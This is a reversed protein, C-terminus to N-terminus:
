TKTSELCITISSVVFLTRSRIPVFGPQKQSTSYGKRKESNFKRRSTTECSSSLFALRIPNVAGEAERQEIWEQSFSVMSKPLHIETKHKDFLHRTNVNSRLNKDAWLKVFLLKVFALFAPGPGYGEKWIANHCTAFLHRAKETTPRVFKFESREAIQPTPAASKAISKAGIIAKLQDFKPNGITFDTFDLTLVPEDKDWEYVSTTKGNSLVFYRVPNSKPFKRNLALCYGSCQEIWDELNQDTGKADLICRPVKRHMLAFDPKYKEKKSGRGVVLLPLSKKTQIQSDKYGLDPLLRCLFFTEVSAENTLDTM